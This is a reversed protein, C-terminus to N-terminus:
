AGFFAEVAFEAVGSWGLDLDGVVTFVTLDVRRLVWGLSCVCSGPRILGTRRPAPDIGHRKQIAWVTSPALRDGLGALEGHFRRYGRTPNETALRVVLQERDRVVRAPRTTTAPLGM